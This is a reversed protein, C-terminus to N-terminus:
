GTIPSLLIAATATGIGPVVVVPIVIPGFRVARHNLLWRVGVLGTLPSLITTIRSLIFLLIGASGNAYEEGTLLARAAVVGMAAGVVGLCALAVYDGFVPTRGTRLREALEGAESLLRAVNSAPGHGQTIDASPDLTQPQPLPEIRSGSRLPLRLVQHWIAQSDDDTQAVLAKAARVGESAGTVRTAAGHIDTAISRMRATYECRVRQCEADYDMSAAALRGMAEFYEQGPNFIM